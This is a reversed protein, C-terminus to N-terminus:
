PGPSKAASTCAQRPESSPGPCVSACDAMNRGETRSASTAPRIYAPEETRGPMPTGM